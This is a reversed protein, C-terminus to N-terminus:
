EDLELTADGAVALLDEGGDGVAEGVSEDFRDVGLDSEEGADGEAEGGGVGEDGQGHEGECSVAWCEGAALSGCM